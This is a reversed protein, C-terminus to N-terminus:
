YGKKIASRLMRAIRSLEERQDRSAVRYSKKVWKVGNGRNYRYLDLEEYSVSMRGATYKVPKFKMPSQWTSSTDVAHVGLDNAQKILSNVYDVRESLNRSGSVAGLTITM